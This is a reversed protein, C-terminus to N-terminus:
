WSGGQCARPPPKAPDLAAGVQKVAARREIVRILGRISPVDCDTREFRLEVRFQQATEREVGLFQGRLEVRGAPRDQARPQGVYELLAGLGLPRRDELAAVRADRRDEREALRGAM